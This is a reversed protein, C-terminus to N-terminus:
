WVRGTEGNRTGEWPHCQSAMNPNKCVAERREEAGSLEVIVAIGVFLVFWGFGHALARVPVM